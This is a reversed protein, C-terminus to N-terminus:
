LFCQNQIFYLDTITRQKDWKAGDKFPLWWGTHEEIDFGAEALQKSLTYSTVKNQM